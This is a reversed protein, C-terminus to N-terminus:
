KHLHCNKCTFVSLAVEGRFIDVLMSKVLSMDPKTEFDEGVFVLCPKSGLQPAYKGGGGLETISVSRDIGLEVM